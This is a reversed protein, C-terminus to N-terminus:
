AKKNLNYRSVCWYFDQALLLSEDQYYMPNSRLRKHIQLLEKDKALINYVTRIVKFFREIENTGPISKARVTEMFDKFETYKYITYTMPYRFCLYVSIIRFGDHFHHQFKNDIKQLEMLIVDCESVFARIREEINQEENFLGKFMFRVRESDFEIFKLMNEKPYFFRSAWLNPSDSNQLSEDYMKYFDPEDINWREQFIKLSEWKYIEDYDTSVILKKYKDKLSNIIELVM